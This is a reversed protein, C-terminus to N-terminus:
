EPRPAATVDKRPMVRELLPALKSLRLNPHPTADFLAIFRNRRLVLLARTSGQQNADLTYDKTLRELMPTVTIMWYVDALARDQTRTIDDDSLPTAAARAKVDRETARKLAATRKELQAPQLVANFERDFEANIDAVQAAYADIQPRLKQIEAVLKARDLKKAKDASVAKVPSVLAAPPPPVEDGRDILARVGFGAAFMGITLLAIFVRQTM